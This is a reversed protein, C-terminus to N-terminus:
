GTRPRQALLRSICASTSAPVSWPEAHDFVRAILAGGDIVNARLRAPPADEDSCMAPWVAKTGLAQRAAVQKDCRCPAAESALGCSRELFSVLQTRARSLRQRFADHSSEAIVAAAAGDFGLLDVLVIALREELSLLLLMGQTCSRRIEQALAQDEPSDHPAGAGFALGRELMRAFHGEDIAVQEAHARRQNIIHRVAITHVWTSFASRGEFAAMHGLVKLLIEQTADEAEDVKGLMRVSLRFIPKTLAVCLAQTAAADGALARGRLAEVEADSPSVPAHM